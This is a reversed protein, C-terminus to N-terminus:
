RWVSHGPVSEHKQDLSLNIDSVHPCIEGAWVYKIKTLNKTLFKTTVDPVVTDAREHFMSDVLSGTFVAGRAEENRHYGALRYRELM